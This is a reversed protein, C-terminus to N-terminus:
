TSLTGHSRAFASLAGLQYLVDTRVEDENLDMARRGFGVLDPFGAFAETFQRRIRSFGHTHFFNHEPRTKGSTHLEPALGVILIHVGGGSFFHQDEGRKERM